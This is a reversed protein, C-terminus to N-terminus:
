RRSELDGIRGEHEVLAVAHHRLVDLAGKFKEDFSEAVIDFHRRTKEAEQIVLRELTEFRKDVDAFRVDIADFRRNAAEFRRDISEFRHDVWKFRRDMSRKLQPITM